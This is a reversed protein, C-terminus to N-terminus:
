FSKTIKQIAKLVDGITITSLWALLALFAVVLAAASFAICMFSVCDYASDHGKGMPNDHVILYYVANVLVGILLMIGLLGAISLKKM